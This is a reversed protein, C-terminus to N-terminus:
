EGEDGRRLGEQVLGREEEVAGHARHRLTLALDEVPEVVAVARERAAFREDDVVVDPVDEGERGDELAVLHVDRRGLGTAVCDVKEVLELRCARDAGVRPEAVQRDDRDGRLGHLAVALLADVGARRVIERFRDIGFLQDRFEAGPEEPLSRPMLWGFGPGGAGTLMRTTSSRGACSLAISASSASRPSFTTQTEEPASASRCSSSRSKATSRSSTLMGSMSPNSVAVIMRWRDLSRCMGMMKM